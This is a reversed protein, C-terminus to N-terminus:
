KHALVSSILRLTFFYIVEIVSLASIGAFLGMLGGSQALFEVFTMKQFRRMPVVQEDKFKINVVADTPKGAMDMSKNYDNRSAGFIEFNYTISNCRELCGCKSRVKARDQEFAFRFYTVRGEHRHDCITTNEDRVIYNPVCRLKNIWLFYEFLCEQECNKLTYIKFFRLTKEGDFYCNRKHPDVSRLNEDTRTIQPSVVIELDHGYQFECMEIDSYSSSLEFPSHIRLSWHKCLNWKPIRVDRGLVLTLGSGGSTSTKLPYDSISINKRTV